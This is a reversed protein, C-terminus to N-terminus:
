AEESITEYFSERFYPVRRKATEELENLIKNSGLRKGRVLSIFTGIGQRIFYKKADESLKLFIQAANNCALQSQSSLAYKKALRSDILVLIFYITEANEYNICQGLDYKDYGTNTKSAHNDFPFLYNIFHWRINEATIEAPVPFEKMVKKVYDLGLGQMFMRMCNKEFEMYATINARLRCIYRIRAATKVMALIAYLPEIEPYETIKNENTIVNRLKKVVDVEKGFWECVDKYCAGFFCGIMGQQMPPLSEDERFVLPKDKKKRILYSIDKISKQMCERAPLGWPYEKQYVQAYINRRSPTLSLFELISEENSAFFYRRSAEDLDRLYSKFERYQPTIEVKEGQLEQMLKGKYIGCTAIVTTPYVSFGTDKLYDICLEDTQFKPPIERAYANYSLLRIVPDKISTRAELEEQMCRYLYYVPLYSTDMKLSHQQLAACVRFSKEILVLDKRTISLIYLGLNYGYEAIAAKYLRAIALEELYYVETKCISRVEPWLRIAEEYTPAINLSGVRMRISENVKKEEANM